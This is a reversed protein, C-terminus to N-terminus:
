RRRRRVLGLLALGVLWGGPQSSSTACGGQAPDEPDGGEMPLGTDAVPRESCAGDDCVQNSACEGDTSCGEFCVGDTCTEGSPCGAIECTEGELGEVCLYESSVASDFVCIQTPSGCAEPLEDAEGDADNDFGDCSEGGCIALDYDTTDTADEATGCIGSLSVGVDVQTWALANDWCLVFTETAGPAVTRGITAPTSLSARTAGDLAYAEIGASAPIFITGTNEITFEVAACRPSSGATIDCTGYDFLPDGMSVSVVAVSADGGTEDVEGDCDDDVSNGCIEEALPVGATADCETGSGDASCVTVGSEQCLGIGATCPVGVSFGNTNNGDCDHDLADCLEATPTGAVAGCQTGTGDATCVLAGTAACEGTGVSCADGVPFGNTPGGVCDHDTTDCREPSPLPADCGAYGGGSCIEVGTGCVTSCSRVLAEDYLGDCDDDLTNCIEVSAALGTASCETNLENGTCVYVGAEFCEGVGASCGDDLRAYPDDPGLRCDNDLGDCFEYNVSTPDFGGSYLSAVQAGSIAYDYIAADDLWGTLNNTRSGVASTVEVGLFLDNVWRLDMASTDVDTTSVAGVLVSASAGNVYANLTGGDHTLVVHTWSSTDLATNLAPVSWTEGLWKLTGNAALSVVDDSSTWRSFLAGTHTASQTRAWLSVTFSARDSADIRVIDGADNWVAATRGATTTSTTTHTSCAGGALNLYCGPIGPQDRELDLVTYAGDGCESAFGDVTCVRQSDMCNDADSGECAGFTYDEDLSGDCDNDQGDCLEQNMDEAPLRDMLDGVQAASLAYGYFAVDDVVGRLSQGPDTSCGTPCGSRTAGSHDLEQGIFIDTTIHNMPSTPITHPGSVLAGNHYVRLQGNGHTMAVHTWAGASLGPGRGYSVGNIQLWSTTGLLLRNATAGNDLASFIAGPASVSVPKVWAALTYEDSEGVTAVPIRAAALNGGGLGLAGASQRGTTRNAPADLTANFGNGSRDNGPTAASEFDYLAIPGSCQAVGDSCVTVGDVCNDSDAGECANGLGLGDDVTGDCDDDVYNCREPAGLYIQGDNPACDGMCEWQRDDDYDIETTALSGDCDDDIGNCGNEATPTGPACELVGLGPVTDVWLDVVPCQGSASQGACAETGARDNSLFRLVFGMEGTVNGNQVMVTNEGAQLDVDQVIVEDDVYCNCRIGNHVLTGNIWVRVNDDYGLSLDVTRAVPSHVYSTAYYYAYNPNDPYLQNFAVGWGSNCTSPIGLGERRWWTRTGDTEGASPTSTPDVTNAPPQVTCANSGGASWYFPGYLLWSDIWGGGHAANSATWNTDTSTSCDRVGDACAGLADATCAAGEGALPGDDINGDCNNDYGDCIEAAGPRISSNSDSCDVSNVVWGAGPAQCENRSEWLNGFNDGDQDRFYDVFTLGDDATGDCDDDLDNCIEVDNEANNDTCLASLGNAACQVVGETCYDTDTGDCALGLGVFTNQPDRYTYSEDSQSNCNNDVGDCLELNAGGDTAGPVVFDPGDAMLAAIGTASLSQALVVPEDVRGAFRSSGARRGIRLPHSSPVLVGGSYATNRLVGDVYMRLNGDRSYTCAVHHWSNAPVTYTGFWFWSRYGTAIACQARNGNIAIEYASEKNMIMGGGTRNVWAAITIEHGTVDTAAGDPVQVYTDLSDIRVGNGRYGPVLAAGGVLSGDGSQGSVTGAVNKVTNGIVADFDLAVRPGGDACATGRRDISCETVDDRCTDADSGRDCPTNVVFGDDTTGDCDNDRGDCFERVQHRDPVGAEAYLNSIVSQGVAAPFVVLEDIRGAYAQAPTGGWVQAGLVPYGYASPSRMQREGQLTGNVYLRMAGNHDFVVAVHTWTNLGVPSISTLAGPGHLGDSVDTRIRGDADMRVYWRWCCGRSDGAGSSSVIYQTSGTRTPRIWTSVTIDKGAWTGFENARAYDNTGDFELSGGSMGQAFRAGNYLNMTVDTDSGNYARTGTADEFDYSSIASQSCTTGNRAANCVMYGNACSASDDTANCSNNLNTFTEDITGSCNNDVDDCLETAGPYIAPDNDVCDVRPVTALALGNARACTTAATVTTADTRFGDRDADQYCTEVGDCNNDYGDAVQEPLGPNRIPNTDDCDGVNTARYFGEPACACIPNGPLGWNDNDQDYYYTTCGVAGHDDVVGNCNNDAGDCAETRAPSVRIRRLTRGTSDPHDEYFWGDFEFASLTMSTMGNNVYGEFSGRSTGNTGTGFRVIERPGGYSAWTKGFSYTGDTAVVGLGGSVHPITVEGMSGNPPNWPLGTYTNVQPGYLSGVHTRGTVEDTAGAIIDNYTRPGTTVQGDSIRIRHVAFSGGWQMPYLYTGDSTVGDMYFSTTPVTTEQVLRWGDRPDYVRYRWGDYSAGGPLNYAVSYAYQEDATIIHWRSGVTGTNRTLLGSPVTVNEQQGLTTGDSFRPENVIGGYECSTVSAQCYSPGPYELNSGNVGVSPDNYGDATSGNCDNNLGDCDERHGPHVNPRGDDCDTNNTVYRSDSPDCISIWTRPSSGYSDRDADWYFTRAPGEDTRSDCDNNVGDCVEVRTSDGVPDNPCQIGGGSCTQSDDACLDADGTSDCAQGVRSDQSGDPTSSRCDNNLGDCIEVRGSDGSTDNVCVLSSGVCQRSDDTCADADGSSDCPANLGPIDDIRNDCDDDMGNNACTEARPGYVRNCRKSGGTCAWRGGACRGFQGTSCSRSYRIDLDGYGDYTGSNCDDNVGNCLDRRGPNILPNSDNCDGSRTTFYSPPTCVSSWTSSWTGYTDRDGDYYVTYAPREDVRGDCDDDVGNCVESIPNYRRNCRVAYLGNCGYTGSACRGNQGTNCSQGVPLNPWGDRDTYANGNCDVDTGNCQEAAGPNIARNYDNCDNAGTCTGWNSSNWYYNWTGSQYRRAGSRYYRAIRRRNSNNAYNDLDSDHCFDWWEQALCITRYGTCTSWGNWGCSYTYSETYSWYCGSYSARGRPNVVAETSGRQEWEEDTSVLLEGDAAIEELGAGDEVREVIRVNQLEDADGALIVAAADAGGVWETADWVLSVGTDAPAVLSSENAATNDACGAIWLAFIAALVTRNSNNM